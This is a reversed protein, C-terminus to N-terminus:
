SDNGLMSKKKRPENDHDIAHLLQAGFHPYLFEDFFLNLNWRELCWYLIQPCKLLISGLLGIYVCTCLIQLAGVNWQTLRAWYKSASPPYLFWSPPCNLLPVVMAFIEGRHLFLKVSVTYNTHSRALTSLLQCSILLKLCAVEKEVGRLRYYWICTVSIPAHVTAFMVKSCKRLMFAFM